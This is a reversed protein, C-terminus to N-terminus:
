KEGHAAAVGLEVGELGDGEAAAAGVEEAVGEAASEGEGVGVGGVRGGEAGEGVGEM